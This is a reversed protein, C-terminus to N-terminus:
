ITRGRLMCVLSAKIYRFFIYRYISQITDSAKGDIKKSIDDRMGMRENKLSSKM